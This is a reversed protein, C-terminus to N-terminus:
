GAGVLDRYLDLVFKWDVAPENELIFNLMLVVSNGSDVKWTIPNQGTHDSLEGTNFDVELLLNGESYARWQARRQNSYGASIEFIRDQDVTYKLVIRKNRDERFILNTKDSSRELGSVYDALLYLDHPAWDTQPPFESRLLSGGREAQILVEGKLSYLISKLKDWLESHTWPQSLFIKCLSNHILEELIAIENENTAIPKDLIVRQHTKELKRLVQIQNRPTTTIWLVDSKKCIESFEDSHSEMSIFTRASIVDVQWASDQAKIAGDIKQSWAGKGILLIRNISL